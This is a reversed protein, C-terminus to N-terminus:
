VVLASPIPIPSDILREIMAACPPCNHGEAFSSCPAVKWNVKGVSSVYSRSVASTPVPAPRAAQAQRPRSFDGVAISFTRKGVVRAPSTPSNPTRKPPSRREASRRSHACQPIAPAPRFQGFAPRSSEPTWRRCASTREHGCSAHRLASTRGVTAQHWSFVDDHQRQEPM